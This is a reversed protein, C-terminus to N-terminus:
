GLRKYMFTTPCLRGDPWLAFDPVEGAISFGRRRYLRFGDSDTVTDLVLLWKGRALAAAEATRMLAEGVGNGRADRRVLMKAIEARHPQNPPMALIVQVTGVLRGNALAVFLLREGLAAAAIAGDWFAGAEDEALPWMFSVSAGGEVCDRLVDVLDAHLERARDTGCLVVEVSL